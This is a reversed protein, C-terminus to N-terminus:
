EAVDGEGGAQQVGWGSGLCSSAFGPLQAPLVPCGPLSEIMAPDPGSM